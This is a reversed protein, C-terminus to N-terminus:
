WPDRPRSTFNSSAPGNVCAERRHAEPDIHSCRDAPGPSLGLEAPGRNRSWPSEGAEMMPTCLFSGAPVRRMWRETPREAPREAPSESVLLYHLAVLPAPARSARTLSYGHSEVRASGLDPDLGLCESAVFRRVARSRLACGALRTAAGSPIRLSRSARSARDVGTTTVRPTSASPAIRDHNRHVSVAGASDSTRAVNHCKARFTMTARSRVRTLCATGHMAIVGSLAEQKVGRDRRATDIQARPCRTLESRRRPAASSRCPASSRDRRTLLNRALSTDRTKIGVEPEARTSDGRTCTSALMALAAGARRAKM